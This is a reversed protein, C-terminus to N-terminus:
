IGLRNTAKSWFLYLNGAYGVVVYLLVFNVSNSTRAYKRISRVVLVFPDDLFGQRDGCQLCQASKLTDRLYGVEM